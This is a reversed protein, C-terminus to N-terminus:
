ASSASRGGCRTSANTRSRRRSSRASRGTRRAPSTASSRPLERAAELRAERLPKGMEATMDQAIREIRAELVEAARFFIAARAPGPTRSWGGFAAAAADVAARADEAGSAPYEGVTESPRWPNRKEYTEGSSSPQWDGGVFNGAPATLTESM